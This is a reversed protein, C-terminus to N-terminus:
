EGFGLRSSPRDRVFVTPLVKGGRTTDIKLNKLAGGGQRAFTITYQSLLSNAIVKLQSVLGTPEVITLRLGGSNLTVTNLIAARAVTEDGQGRVSVSWVSAGSKHVDDAVKNLTTEASTDHSGFDITVIVRRPAPKEAITRSADALAELMVATSVINPNLRQIANDLDLPPADFKTRAVSAGAIETLAFQAGPNGDRIMKVFTQLSTRLDLTPATSGLPPQTTDVLLLISLPETALEADVVERTAKDEHVVFDKASLDRIPGAATAVATAFVAKRGDQYAPADIAHWALLSLLAWRYM